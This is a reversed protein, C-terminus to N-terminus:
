GDSTNTDPPPPAESAAAQPTKMLAELQDLEAQDPRVFYRHRSRRMTEFEWGLGVVLLGAAVIGACWWDASRFAWAVPLTAAVFIWFYGYKLNEVILQWLTKPSKWEHVYVKQHFQYAEWSIEGALFRWAATQVSNFRLLNQYAILSRVFFRVVLPFALALVLLSVSSFEPFGSPRGDGAFLEGAGLAGLLAALTGAVLTMNSNMTNFAQTIERGANEYSLRALERREGVERSM